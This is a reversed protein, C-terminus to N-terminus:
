KSTREDYLKCLMYIEYEDLKDFDVSYGFYNCVFDYFTM